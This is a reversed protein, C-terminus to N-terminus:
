LNLPSYISHEGNKTNIKLGFNNIIPEKKSFIIVTDSKKQKTKLYENLNIEVM